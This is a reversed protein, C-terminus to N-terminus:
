WNVPPDESQRQQSESAGVRMPIGTLMEAREITENESFVPLTEEWDYLKPEPNAAFIQEKTWKKAKPMWNDGVGLATQEMSRTALVHMGTLNGDYEARYMKLKEISQQKMILARVPNKITREKGAQEFTFEGIQIVTIYGIVTRPKLGTKPNMAVFMCLPCESIDNKALCPLTGFKNTAPMSYPHEYRFYLNDDEIIVFESKGGKPVGFGFPTRRRRDKTEAQFSELTQDLTDWASM